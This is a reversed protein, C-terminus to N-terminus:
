SPQGRQWAELLADYAVTRGEGEEDRALWIEPDIPDALRPECQQM